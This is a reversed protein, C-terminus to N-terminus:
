VPFFDGPAAATSAANEALLNGLSPMAAFGAGGAIARM